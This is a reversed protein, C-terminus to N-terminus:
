DNDDDSLERDSIIIDGGKSTSFIIYGKSNILYNPNEIKILKGTEPNYQYFILRSTDMGSLDVNATVRVDHGFSGKHDLSIFKIKNEDISNLQNNNNFKINQSTTASIFFGNGGTNVKNLEFIKIDVSSDGQKNKSTVTFGTLRNEDNGYKLFHKVYSLIDDGFAEALDKNAMKYVTVDFLASGARGEKLGYEMFHKLLLEKNNGFAEAVDPYRNAYYEADFIQQWQKKTLSSSKINSINNLKQNLQDKEIFKNNYIQTHLHDIAQQELKTTDINNFILNVQNSGGDGSQQSSSLKQNIYESNYSTKESSSGSENDPKSFPLKSTTNSSKTLNDESNETPTTSVNPEPSPSDSPEPSPSHNPASTPTGSSQSPGTINTAEANLTFVPMYSVLMAVFILWAINLILIKSIKM